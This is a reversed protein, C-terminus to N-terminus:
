IGISVFQLILEIALILLQQVFIDRSFVLFETYFSFNKKKSFLQFCFSGLCFFRRHLYQINLKPPTSALFSYFVFISISLVFTYEKVKEM